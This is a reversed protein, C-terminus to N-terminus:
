IGWPSRCTRVRMRNAEDDGEFSETAPNFKLKRGLKWSLAAAHCANHGYRAVTSNCIPKGRSKVCDLFNRVHKGPNTGAMEEPRGAALLSPDSTVIKGHDGVEVWGTEGEFRV